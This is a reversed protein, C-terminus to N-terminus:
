IKLPEEKRMPFIAFHRKCTIVLVLLLESTQKVIANKDTDVPHYITTLYVM